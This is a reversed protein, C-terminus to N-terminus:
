FSSLLFLSSSFLFFIAARESSERERTWEEQFVCWKFHSLEYWLTHSFLCRISLNHIRCTVSNSLWLIRYGRCRCLAEFLRVMQFASCVVLLFSLEVSYLAISSHSMLFGGISDHCSLSVLQCTPALFLPCVVATVCLDRRYFTGYQRWFSM